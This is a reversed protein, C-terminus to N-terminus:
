DPLMNLNFLHRMTPRGHPCNWPQEIEGMHTLLQRMEGRNLATGIMVSKRCARSAFMQRVRSPRCMVGPADSLMFILEEIDEKGFTWNKSVPMSVLRVRETCPADEQISFEFGNKTFIDMNDMLISENAATLHLSQPQILRQGRLVTNRQLMEFNYKEDTAHQDIIFLDEGLRTIIFGLNFQGLIEMQRFKDKSIERRLEEEAAQNDTPSIKARFTRGMREATEKSEARRKLKQRLSDMSFAVKIEKRHINAEQDFCVPLVETEFDETTERKVVETDPSDSRTLSLTSSTASVSKCLPFKAHSSKGSDAEREQTFTNEQNKSDQRLPFIRNNQQKVEKIQVTVESQCSDEKSNYEDSSPTAIGGHKQPSEEFLTSPIAQKQQEKIASSEDSPLALCEDKQLGDHVSTWSELESASKTSKIYIASEIKNNTPMHDTRSFGTFTCKPFDDPKCRRTEEKTDFLSTSTAEPTAEQKCSPPSRFFTDLKRQKPTRDQPTDDKDVSPHSFSRKLGALSISSARKDKVSSTVGCTERSDRNDPSPLQLNSAAVTNPLVAQNVAYVSSTPEYMQMLSTKIIALLTREEQLWVQRKDPTVNVDVSDRALSIDLVVFPYQHRNYMHYVENVVKSVKPLDCPRKNIFFYQRDASGRGQGHSCTSLHGTISFHETSNDGQVGMEESVEQSPRHQVFPLLGSLQKPGFVNTVNEKLSANGNTSVVTTRKGKGAQHTCTIRVNTSIVCYAYLVILMKSYEKKLNRLFEKHRVPLTSFIQQITVTTGQQRACPAKQILKGNHDYVLKTGVHADKHCTTISLDSLACLSSLAEGRFGFTEVSTLDSFDQLKSTHHKLTLGEFNSEEVGSGNDVVELLESGHEKLRIDINTAGADLSNEVLEKMATALNLVVQGSCIQHVSRRDIPQIPGAM